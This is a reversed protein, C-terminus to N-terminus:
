QVAAARPATWRELLPLVGAAPVPKGLRLDNLRDPLGDLPTAGRAAATLRDWDPLSESRVRERWTSM